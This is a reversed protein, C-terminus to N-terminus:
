QAMTIRRRLRHRFLKQQTQQNWLVALPVDAGSRRDLCRVHLNQLSSPSHISNTPQRLKKKGGLKHRFNKRRAPKATLVLM